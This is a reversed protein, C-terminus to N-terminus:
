AYRPHHRDVCGRVTAAVAHDRVPQGWRGIRYGWVGFIRHEWTTGWEDTRIVHYRGDIDFNQPPVVPLKLDRQDGFDHGCAQMLELLKQGHEFLGAPSPHIQLPIKDVPQFALAALMRERPNM